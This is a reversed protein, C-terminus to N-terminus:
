IIKMDFHETIILKSSIFILRNTGFFFFIYGARYPLIRFTHKRGNFNRPLLFGGYDFSM